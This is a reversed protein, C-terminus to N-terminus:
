RVPLYADGPDPPPFHGHESEGWCRLAGDDRLACTVDRSTRVAVFREDPYLDSTSRGNPDERPMCDVVGSEHLACVHTSAVSIETYGSSQPWRSTELQERELAAIVPSSSSTTAVYRMCRPRGSPEIGCAVPGLVLDLWQQAEVDALAFDWYGGSSYEAGNSLKGGGWCEWTDTGLARGCAGWDFATLDEFEGSPPNFVQCKSSRCGPQNREDPPELGWCAATSAEASLGCAFSSTFVGTEVRGLAESPPPAVEEDELTRRGDVFAAVEGLTSCRLEGVLNIGCNEGATSASLNAMRGSPPGLISESTEWQETEYDFSLGGWCEAQQGDAVVGCAHRPGLTIESWCCSVREAECGSLLALLLLLPSAHALPSNM